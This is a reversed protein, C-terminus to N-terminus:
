FRTAKNKFLGVNKCTMIIVASQSVFISSKLDPFKSENESQINQRKELQSSVQFGTENDERVSTEVDGRHPIKPINM